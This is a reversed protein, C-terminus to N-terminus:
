LYYYQQLEAVQELAANCVPCNGPVIFTKDGECRIHCQFVTKSCPDGKPHNQYRSGCSCSNTETVEKKKASFSLIENSKTM